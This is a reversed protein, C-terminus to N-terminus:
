KRAIILTHFAFRWPLIRRLVCGAREGLASTEYYSGRKRFIPLLGYLTYSHGIPEMREICFGAKKVYEALELQPYTREYYAARKVKGPRLRERLKYLQDTVQSHPITLVLVGGPALVRYAERLAPEPGQEFHELVGFSLYAGFLDARYPLAHVDGLHLRLDPLREHTFRLAEPAYDLGLTPYGRQELYYVIHAPGSGAELTLRAKNLFPLYLDLLERSRPYDLSRLENDFETGIWIDRWAQRTQEYTSTTM